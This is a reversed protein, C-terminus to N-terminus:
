GEESLLQERVSELMQVSEEFPIMPQWNYGNMLTWAHRFTSHEPHLVGVDSLASASGYLILVRSGYMLAWFGFVFEEASMDEPLVLERAAIADRVVGAVLGMMRYECQRFQMQRANSAREFISGTRLMEEVLLHDRYQTAYLDVACGIAGMRQRSGAVAVSAREFLKRRFELSEIALAVVIEEKNQFHNYLTGKAFRMENALREMSLSAYGDALLKIRALQLIQQERQDIEQKKRTLTSM